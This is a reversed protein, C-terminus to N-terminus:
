SHGGPWRAGSVLLLREGHRGAAGWHLDAVDPAPEGVGCVGARSDFALAVPM